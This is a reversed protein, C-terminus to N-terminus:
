MIEQQVSKKQTKQGGNSSLWSAKPQQTSTAFCSICVLNILAGTLSSVECSIRLSTACDVPPRRPLNIASNRSTHTYLRQLFNVRDVYKGCKPCKRLPRAGPPNLDAGINFCKVIPSRPNKKNAARIQLKM